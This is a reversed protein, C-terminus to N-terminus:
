SEVESQGTVRHSVNTLDGARMEELYRFLTRSTIGLVQAANERHNECQELATRVAAHTFRVRAAELTEGPAWALTDIEIDATKCPAGQALNDPAIEENVCLVAARRVASQLERVNGAWPQAKLWQIAAHNFAKGPAIENLFHHALLVIDDVRERLPPITLNIEALRYFLDSRFAGAQIMEPIQQHSASVIRIDVETSRMSGIPDVKKDQLVRLLKVQLPLPLDGIEDLFLTGKHAQQIKGQHDKVAGTFAGKVHGFLLSELLEHPIAGCNVAVFPGRGRESREHIWRALYEKGVGTEGAIMVSIDTAAIRGALLVVQEMQASSTLFRSPDRERKLAVLRSELARERLHDDLVLSMVDSVLRVRKELTAAMARVPWSSGMLCVGLIEGRIILPVGIASAFGSAMLSKSSAYRSDLIQGVFIIDRSNMADDIITESLWNEDGRINHKQLIEIAGGAARSIVIGKQMDTVGLLCKLLEAFTVEVSEADKLRGLVAQLDTFFRDIPGDEPATPVAFFELDEIRVLEMPAVIQAAAKRQRLNHVHIKDNKVNLLVYDDLTHVGNLPVSQFQPGTRYYLVYNM